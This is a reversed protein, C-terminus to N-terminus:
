KDIKLVAGPSAGHEGENLRMLLHGPNGDKWLVHSVHTAM